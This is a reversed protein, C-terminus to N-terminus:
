RSRRSRCYIGPSTEAVSLINKSLAGLGPQNNGNEASGIVQAHARASGAAGTAGTAGTLGRPGAPGRRGRPGRLKKRESKKFDRLTLSGNKVDAGTILAAAGATGGVVLRATLAAIVFPPVRGGRGSKNM